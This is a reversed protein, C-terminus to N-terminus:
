IRVEEQCEELSGRLKGGTLRERKLLSSFEVRNSKCTDEQHDKIVMLLGLVVRQATEPLRPPQTGQLSQAGLPVSAPPGDSWELSLASERFIAKCSQSVDYLVVM